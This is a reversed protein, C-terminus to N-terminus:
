GESDTSILQGAAHPKCGGFGPPKRAVWVRCRGFREFERELQQEPIGPPLNGVYLKAM